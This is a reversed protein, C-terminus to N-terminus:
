IEPVSTCRLTHSGTGRISESCKGTGAFSGAGVVEAAILAVVGGADLMGLPAVIYGGVVGGAIGLVVSGFVGLAPLVGCLAEPFRGATVALV